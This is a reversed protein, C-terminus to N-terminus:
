AQATPAPDSPISEFPDVSPDAPLPPAPEAVPAAPIEGRAAKLLTRIADIPIADEIFTAEFRATREESEAFIESLVWWRLRWRSTDLILSLRRRGHRATFMTDHARDDDDRHPGTFALEAPADVALRAFDKLDGEVMRRERLRFRRRRALAVAGLAAILCLFPILFWTM